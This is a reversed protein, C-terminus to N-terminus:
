SIKKVSLEDTCETLLQHITKHLVPHEYEPSIENLPELVFRRDPIRPHPITLGPEEIILRDYFLIDIDITRPANKVTRIRGGKEEIQLLAKLLEGPNYKTEILLVQNLFYAQDTKGWPATEYLSSVQLLRGCIHEINTRAQQMNRYRDGENGGTLLYAKNM